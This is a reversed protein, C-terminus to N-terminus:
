GSHRWLGRLAGIALALLVAPTLVWRIESGLVELGRESFFAAVGIPSVEIVQWPMFYRTSDLPWFFIIGTGGNTFADLLGHSATALTIFCFAIGPSSRLVRASLAAFVGCALAFILTHTIGRHGVRPVVNELYVDLDPLISFVVGAVLLRPPM